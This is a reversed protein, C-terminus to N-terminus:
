IVAQIFNDAIHMKSIKLFTMSPTNVLWSSHRVHSFETVSM